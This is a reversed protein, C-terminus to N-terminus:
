GLGALQSSYQLSGVLVETHNVKMKHILSICFKVLKCYKM